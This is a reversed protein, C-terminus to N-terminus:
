KNGEQPEMPPPPPSSQDDKVEPLNQARWSQMGGKLQLAHTWGMSRLKKVASISRHASLCICIIQADKPKSQVIKLLRDEFSWPPILSCSVAGQIHGAAYEMETRVDIILSTPAAELVKPAPLEPVKGFTWWWMRMECFILPNVLSCERSTNRAACVVVM